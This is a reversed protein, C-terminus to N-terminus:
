SSAKIWLSQGNRTLSWTIGRGEGKRVIMKNDKLIQLAYGVDTASYSANAKQLVALLEGRSSNPSKALHRVVLAVRVRVGRRNAKIHIRGDADTSVKWDHGNRSHHKQFQLNSM